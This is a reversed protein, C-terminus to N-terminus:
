SQCVPPSQSSDIGVAGPGNPTTGSAVIYGSPPPGATGSAEITGSVSGSPDSGTVGVHGSTGGPQSAYAPGATVDGSGPGTPTPCAAHASMGPLAFGAAVLGSAGLLILRRKM